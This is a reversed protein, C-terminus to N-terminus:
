YDIPQLYPESAYNEFIIGNRDLLTGMVSYLTAIANNYNILSQVEQTEADALRSQAQLKLDLLFEPTLAVGAAEQEEIARLNDAAALRAARTAGILEYSTLLERLANKVELVVQQAQSQYAVVSQKRALISEEYAAEPGRNGIPVEFNAQAIWDVFDLEIFDGYAAVPNNINVGSLTNGLTVNLIPLRGNDAVRQRISADKINYLLTQLDPRNNLATTVADLLSFQLPVDVPWDVPLILTEASVPLEESNILRKLADSADRVLQRARIVDSRRLEVFSNAETLRVPNVDFNQRTRLRNRDDITRELLRTQILLSQKYFSLLWYQSEVQEALSILDSRLQQRSSQLANRALIISARNVDAGFGRLLPQVLNVTLNSEFFNSTDGGFSSHTHDLSTSTTLQAGSALQKNIGTQFNYMESLAAGQQGAFVNGFNPDANRTYGSNIFFNADFFAEAQTLRTETIAPTYRATRIDLNNKVALEIAKQLTLRVVEQNEDGLLNQGVILDDDQYAEIGSIKNLENEREPTLEEVVDSPVRSLEIVPATSVAEIETRYSSILQDRLEEEGSRYLPSKCGSAVLASSAVFAIMAASSIQKKAASKSM